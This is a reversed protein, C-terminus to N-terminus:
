YKYNEISDIIIKTKFGDKVYMNGYISDLRELMAQNKPLYMEEINVTCENDEDIKLIVHYKNEVTAFIRKINKLKSYDLSYLMDINELLKRMSEENTKKEWNDFIFFSATSFIIGILAGSNIHVIYEVGIITFIWWAILWISYLVNKM